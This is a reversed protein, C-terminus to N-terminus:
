WGFECQSGLPSRIWENVLAEAHWSVPGNAKALLQGVVWAGRKQSVKLTARQGQAHVAYFYSRSSLVEWGCDAVCNRQRNSEAILSQISRLPRVVGTGPIPPKPFQLGGLGSVRAADRVLECHLTKLEKMSRVPGLPRGGRPHVVPYLRVCERLRYAAGPFRDGDKTNGIEELFGPACSPQLTPDAAIRLVCANLRPTHSIAARAPPSELATKLFRLGEVTVSEAPVRCLMRRASRTDEWGLHRQIQRQRTGRELLGRAIACPRRGPRQAHTALLFALAPNSEALDWAPISSGFLQMMRLHGEGFQSIVGRHADNPLVQLFWLWWARDTRSPLMSELDSFLRQGSREVQPRARPHLELEAAPAPVEPLACPRWRPPDEKTSMWARLRPTLCVVRDQDVLRLRGSSAHFYVGLSGPVSTPREESNRNCPSRDAM